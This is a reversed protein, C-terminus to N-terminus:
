MSTVFGNDESCIVKITKDGYYTGTKYRVGNEELKKLMAEYTHLEGCRNCDDFVIVFSKNLCGPLKKLVDVRAFEKMDGGFPADIVIFDFTEDKIKDAFGGFQRVGETEVYNEYVLPCHMIKTEEPLDYNKAFFDIWAQDHEVVWHKEPKFARTYQSILKTSQGLGLELIRKPHLENIVRFVVYACPYGIAWRGLSFSKDKLWDADAITNNFIAAWVAEDNGRKISDAKKNLKMQSDYIQNIRLHEDHVEIQVKKVTECTNHLEVRSKKVDMCTNHLEERIKQSNDLVRDVTKQQQSIFDNVRKNELVLNPCLKCVIKEIINM